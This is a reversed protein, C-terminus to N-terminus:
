GGFLPEYHYATAIIDVTEGSKMAALAVEDIDDTKVWIHGALCRGHEDRVNKLELTDM